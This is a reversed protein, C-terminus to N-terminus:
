GEKEITTLVGRLLPGYEAKGPCVFTCLALDEEDLELCGLQQAGEIDSVLLARLLFTPMIDMPMVREYLGIPVMARDSGNTSSGLSFKKGPILKSIFTNVTSYSEAGPTLWGLFEQGRQEPIASIQQHYRGLYGFVEGSAIRGALVSGSIVRNEGNALEREVLDDTSAGIRTALLRPRTVSPGALSIVRAVDLEGSAFLRGIAAVDQYNVHWVLKQADVPDLHHIHVGVTGSPHPGSFEEVTFRGGSPASVSSGPSKCIYVPGDTLKALAQLGREFNEQKGSLAVDVEPALPNTDAATVFISRPTKEPDAVRGFPRGRLAAWLGSEVLLEKIQGRDLEGPSRGMFSSFAVTEGDGALEASDLQIVVSQLARREGRHIATIRGSAPATYRVGPNRKDEFLLQGRQVDDGVAVHMTPKMGVYDDAILAVHRPQRATAVQQQPAGTIPLNLGKKIKHLGM